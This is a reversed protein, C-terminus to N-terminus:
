AAWGAGVFSCGGACGWGAGAGSQPGRPRVRAAALRLLVLEISMPTAGAHARRKILPVAGHRHWGCWVEPEAQSTAARSGRTSTWPPGHEEPGRRSGGPQLWAGRGLGVFFERSSEPIESRQISFAPRPRSHLDNLRRQETVGARRSSATKASSVWGYARWPPRGSLRAGSGHKQVSNGSPLPAATSRRTLSNSPSPHWWCLRSTRM